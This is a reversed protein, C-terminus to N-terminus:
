NFRMKDDNCNCITEEFEEIEIEVRALRKKKLYMKVFEKSKLMTFYIKLEKVKLM